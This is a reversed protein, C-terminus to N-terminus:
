SEGGVLKAVAAGSSASLYALLADAVAKAKTVDSGDPMDIVIHATVSQRINQGTVLPDAVLDNSTLKFLHRARKGYSHSVSVQVGRDATSFDGGTATSNTRSLSKASGSITVSMPDTFM